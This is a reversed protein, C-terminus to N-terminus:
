NYLILTCNVFSGSKIKIKESIKTKNYDEIIKPIITKYILQKTNSNTNDSCILYEMDYGTIETNTSFHDQYRRLKLLVNDDYINLDELGSNNHMRLLLINADKNYKSVIESLTKEARIISNDELRMKFVKKALDIQGSNLYNLARDLAFYDMM